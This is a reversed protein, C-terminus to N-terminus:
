QMQQIPQTSQQLHGQLHGLIKQYHRQHMQGAQDIAAKVEPDLCHQSFFHAKKMALLNWSMMDKLYLEDKTSVVNPPHPMPSQQNQTNQQIQM